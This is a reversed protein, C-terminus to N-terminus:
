AWTSDTPQPHNKKRKGSKGFFLMLSNMSTTPAQLKEQKCEAKQQKQNRTLNISHKYRHNNGPVPMDKGQFPPYHLVPTAQSSPLKINEFGHGSGPRLERLEKNCIVKNTDATNRGVEGLKGVELSRSRAIGSPFLYVKQIVTPLNM